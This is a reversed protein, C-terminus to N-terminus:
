CHELVLVLQVSPQATGSVEVITGPSIENALQQAAVAQREELQGQSFHVKWLLERQVQALATRLMWRTNKLNFHIRPAGHDEDRNVKRSGRALRTTTVLPANANRRDWETPRRTELREWIRFALFWLPGVSVIWYAGILLM